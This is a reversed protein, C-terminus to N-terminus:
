AAATEKRKQLALDYPRPAPKRENPTARLQSLGVISYDVANAALQTSRDDDDVALKRVKDLEELDLKELEAQTPYLRQVRKNDKLAAVLQSKLATRQRDREALMALMRDYEERKVAVTGTESIPAKDAVQPITALHAMGTDVVSQDIVKKSAAPTEDSKKATLKASMTTLTEDSLTELWTGFGKKAADDTLCDNGAVMAAIMKQREDKNMSVDGKSQSNNGNCGCPKSQAKVQANAAPQDDTTTADVPTWQTVAQVEQEDDALTVKFDQGSGEAEFSRWYTRYQGSEETYTAYIVLSESPLVEVIEIFGVVTSQLKAWLAERLDVDSATDGANAGIGLLSAVRALLNPRPSNNATYAFALSQVSQVGKNSSIEYTVKRIARARDAGVALTDGTLEFTRQYREYLDGSSRVNYIVTNDATFFAEVWLSEADTEVQALAAYLLERIDDDSLGQANATPVTDVWTIKFKHKHKM